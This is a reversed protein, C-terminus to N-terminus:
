REKPPCPVKGVLNLPKPQYGGLNYSPDPNGYYKNRLQTDVYNELIKIRNELELIKQEQDM